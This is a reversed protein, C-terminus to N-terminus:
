RLNRPETRAATQSLNECSRSCATEPQKTFLISQQLVVPMGTHYMVHRVPGTFHRAAVQSYDVDSEWYFQRCTSVVYRAQPLPVANAKRMLVSLVTQETFWSRASPVWAALLRTALDDSLAGEPVYLLGSNFRDIHGAGLYKCRDMITQDCNGDREELMYFPAEDGVLKMAEVPPNFALVDHDSYLVSGRACIALILGLKKGLPHNDVFAGIEPRRKALPTVIEGAEVVSIGPFLRRVMVLRTESLRGDVILQLEFDLDRVYRYWSWASWLADQLTDPTTLVVFRRSAKCVSLPPLKVCQDRVPYKRGREFWWVPKTLLKRLVADVRSPERRRVICPKFVRTDAVHSRLVRRLAGFFDLSLSM